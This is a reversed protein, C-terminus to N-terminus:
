RAVSGSYSPRTLTGTSHSLRVSVITEFSDASTTRIIAV